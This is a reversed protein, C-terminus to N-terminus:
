NLSEKRTGLAISLFVACTTAPVLLAEAHATFYDKLQILIGIDTFELEIPSTLAIFLAIAGLILGAMFVVTMTLRGRKRQRDVENKIGDVARMKQEVELLFTPNDKIQPKNERLYSDIDTEKM